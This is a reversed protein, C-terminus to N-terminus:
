RQGAIPIYRLVRQLLDDPVSTAASNPDANVVSAVAAPGTTYFIFPTNKYDSLKRIADHTDIGSLHRGQDDVENDRLWDSIVVDYPRQGNAANRKLAKVADATNTYSDCYIGIAALALREAQNNPPHDDVWMVKAIPLVRSGKRLENLVDDETLRIPPPLTKGESSAASRLESGAKDVLAVAQNPNLHLEIDGKNKRFDVTFNKYIAFLLVPVAIVIAALPWNVTLSRRNSKVSKPGMTAHLTAWAISGRL